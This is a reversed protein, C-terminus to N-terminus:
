QGLRYFINVHCFVICSKYEAVLKGTNERLATSLNCDIKSLPNIIFVRQFTEFKNGEETM